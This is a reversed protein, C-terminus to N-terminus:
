LMDEDGNVSIKGDQALVLAADVFERQAAQAEARTVMPGNDIEDRLIAAEKNAINAFFRDRIQQSAGRLAPAVRQQNVSRIVQQLAQDPLRMLDDFTFMNERIRDALDSDLDRIRQLTLDSMSGSMGNLLDAALRVGGTADSKTSLHGGLMEAMLIKLEELAFGQVTDLKAFRFIVDIALDENLAALCAVATGKPMQGLLVAILQPREDKIQDALIKPDVKILVDISKANSRMIREMMEDARKNGFANVLISKFAPFGGPVISDPVDIDAMLNAYIQYADENSIPKLDAMADTISAITSESMHRVVSAAVSQEMSMLVYAAKVPGTMNDIAIPRQDNAPFPENM